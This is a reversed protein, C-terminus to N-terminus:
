STPKIEASTGKIAAIEEETLKVFFWKELTQVREAESKCDLLVETAGGDVRRQLVNGFMTLTGQAEQEESEPGAKLIIRTLVFTTTFWSTPDKMTRFNLSKFDQPLFETEGFCYGAKWDKSHTDCTELVWLKQDTVNDAITRYNLRAELGPVCLGHSSDELLLPSLPGFNGFGVDIHYRKGEIFAIIVMHERSTILKEIRDSPFRMLEGAMSAMQTKKETLM